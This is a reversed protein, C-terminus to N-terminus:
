CACPHENLELEVTAPIADFQLKASKVLQEVKLEEILQPRLLLLILVNRAVYDFQDPTLEHNRWGWQPDETPLSINLYKKAVAQLSRGQKELGVSLIGDALFTDFIAGNLNIGAVKLLKMAWVANHLIKVMTTELLEKTLQRGMDDIKAWDIILVPLTPTAIQILRIKDQGPKLPDSVMTEINLGLFKEQKYKNVDHQLQKGRTIYNYTTTPM